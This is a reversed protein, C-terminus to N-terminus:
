GMRPISLSLALFRKQCGRRVLLGAVIVYLTGFM